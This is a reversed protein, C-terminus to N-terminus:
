QAIRDIRPQTVRLYAAGEIAFSRDLRAANFYIRPERALTEDVVLKLRENFSFPPVSGMVCLTLAEADTTSAFSASRGGFILAVANMDVRKDGGLVALAYIPSVACKVKVVMAKAAARLPHGRMGSAIETRGEPAHDIVDFPTESRRLLDVIKDYINATSTETNM